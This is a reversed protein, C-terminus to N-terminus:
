GKLLHPAPPLGTGWRQEDRPIGEASHLDIATGYLRSVRLRIVLRQDAVMNRLFAAADDPDDFPPQMALLERGPEDGPVTSVASLEAEGEAVAFSMFDASSVYLASRPDRRLRRVKVRDATTSIRAIREGADWVYAVTSLHPHGNRKNIALAGMRHAALLQALEDDSPTLAGPGRGPGYTNEDTVAQSM